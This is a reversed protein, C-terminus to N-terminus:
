RRLMLLRVFAIPAFLLYGVLLIIHSGDITFYNPALALIRRSQIAVLLIASLISFGVIVGQRSRLAIFAFMGALILEGMFRSGMTIELFVPIFPLLTLYRTGRVIRMAVRKMNM